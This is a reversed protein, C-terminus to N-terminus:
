ACLLDLPKFRREFVGSASGGWFNEIITTYLARYDIAPPPGDISFVNIVPVTEGMLGGKVRGGAVFQTSAWGHHTGQKENENGSRGFEDYTVFLTDNWQGIEIMGQRFAAFGRALRELIAGHYKLQDWHTDFGSHQDGDLGNLCIHVVPPAIGAAAMEVTAKLAAGFPENPFEAKLSATEPQAFTSEASKAPANALHKTGIIRRTALWETAHQMQVARIKKGRFPGMPDAERIDLDDFAIADLARPSFKAANKLMARTLWGDDLFEEPGAGTFQRELDRYHQNTIDAQGISQVLAVEKANWAPMMSQLATHFGHTETVHILQERKLALNPRVKRYTTDTFPVFTNYTDNGGKLYVLVLLKQWPAPGAAAAGAWPSTLTTLTSLAATHRLFHRRNM